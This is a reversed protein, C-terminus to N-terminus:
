QNKNDPTFDSDVSNEIKEALNNLLTSIYIFFLSLIFIIIGYNQGLFCIIMSAIIGGLCTFLIIKSILRLKKCKM